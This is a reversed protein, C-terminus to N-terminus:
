FCIGCDYKYFIFHDPESIFASGDPTFTVRVHERVLGKWDNWFCCYVDAYSGDLSLIVNPLLLGDVALTSFDFHEIPNSDAMDNIRKLDEEQFIYRRHIYGGHWIAPMITHATAILYLQWAGMETPDVDLCESSFKLENDYADYFYFTSEDGLFQPNNEGALKLGLKLGTKPRISKAHYFLEGKDKLDKTKVISRKIVNHIEEGAASFLNVKDFCDLFLQTDAIIRQGTEDDPTVGQSQIRHLLEKAKSTDQNLPNNTLLSGSYRMVALNWLCLLSPKEKKEVQMLWEAAKDYAGMNVWYVSFLNAMATQCGKDALEKFLSIANETNDNNAMFIAADNGKELDGNEYYERLFKETLSSIEEETYFDMREDNTEFTHQGKLRPNFKSLHAPLPAGFAIHQPTEYRIRTDPVLEVVKKCKPCVSVNGLYGHLGRPLDFKYWELKSSVTGCVPCPLHNSLPEGDGSLCRSIFELSFGPQDIDHFQCMYDQIRSPSFTIKDLFGDREVFLLVMERYCGPKLYVAPRCQNPQWKVIVKIELNDATAREIWDRFYELIADKGNYSRQNILTLSSDACLHPEMFSVDSQAFAKAFAISIAKYSYEPMNPELGFKHPISVKCDFIEEPTLSEM